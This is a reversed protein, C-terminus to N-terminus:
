HLANQLHELSTGDDTIVQDLFDPEAELQEFIEASV